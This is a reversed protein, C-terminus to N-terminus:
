GGRYRDILAKLQAERKRAAKALSADLRPVRRVDGLLREASRPAWQQELVDLKAVVYELLRGGHEPRESAAARAREAARILETLEGKARRAKGASRTCAPCFGASRARKIPVGRQEHVYKQAAATFTFSAGCRGCTSEFGEYHTRGNMEGFGDVLRRHDIPARDPKSRRAVVWRLASVPKHHRPM